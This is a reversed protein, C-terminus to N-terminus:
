RLERSREACLQLPQLVASEATLFNKFIANDCPPKVTKDSCRLHEDKATPEYIYAMVLDQGVQISFGEEKNIFYFNGEVDYDGQVKKFKALDIHLDALPIQKKIRVWIRTVTGPPVNWEDRACKESCPCKSYQIVVTEEPLYYLPFDNDKAAGLLREVDARTSKLPVIGHWEKAPCIIATSLIVLFCAILQKNNM